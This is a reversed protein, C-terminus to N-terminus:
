MSSCKIQAGTFLAFMDKQATEVMVVEAAEAAGPETDQRTPETKAPEVPMEVATEATALFALLAQAGV